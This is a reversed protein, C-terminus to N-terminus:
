PIVEANPALAKARDLRSSHVILTATGGAPTFGEHAVVFWEDPTAKTDDVQIRTITLPGMHNEIRDFRM